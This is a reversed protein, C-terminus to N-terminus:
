EGGSFFRCIRGLLGTRGHGEGDAAEDDEGACCDGANAHQAARLKAEAYARAVAPDSTILRVIPEAEAGCLRGEVYAQLQEPIGNRDNMPVHLQVDCSCHPFSKPAAASQL